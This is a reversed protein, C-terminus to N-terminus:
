EDEGLMAKVALLNGKHMIAPTDEGMWAGEINYSVWESAEDIDMGDTVFHQVLEEYGYIVIAPQGCRQYYGVVADDAGTIIKIAMPSNDDNTLYM